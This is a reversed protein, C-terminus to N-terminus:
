AGEERALTRKEIVYVHTVLFVKRWDFGRKLFVLLRLVVELYDLRQVAYVVSLKLRDDPTQVVYLHADCWVCHSRQVLHRVLDEGLHLTEVIVVTVHILRLDVLTM